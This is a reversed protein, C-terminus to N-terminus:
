MKMDLLYQSHALSLWLSLNICSIWINGHRLPFMKMSPFSWVMVIAVWGLRSNFLLPM